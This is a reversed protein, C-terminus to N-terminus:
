AVLPPMLLPRILGLLGVQLVPRPTLGQSHFIWVIIASKFRTVVKAVFNVYSKTNFSVDEARGRGHSGRGAKNNFQHGANNHWPKKSPFAVNASLLPEPTISQQIARNESALLLNATAVDYSDVRSTLVAVTPEFEPGLGAM